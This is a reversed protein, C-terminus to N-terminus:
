KLFFVNMRLYLKIKSVFTECFSQGLLHHMTILIIINIIDIIDFGYSSMRYFRLEKLSYKNFTKTKYLDM